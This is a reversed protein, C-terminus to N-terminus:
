EEAAVPVALLARKATRLVGETTSGRLADLFSKHGATAMVILDAELEEAAEAITEVVGGQRELVEGRRGQPAAVQPGAGPRGVHLLHFEPDQGLLDAMGVAAQIAAAPDPDEAVPILVHNLHAAGDEGSVFGEAEAPVFLAPIKAHRSLSESFSHEFLRHLGTLGRTGLVIMAANQNHLMKVLAADPDLALIEGKSIMIGLREGVETESVDAPLLGWQALTARVHPFAQLHPAEEVEYGHVHVLSLRSRGALALKLAHHFAGESVAGLDTPHVILSRAM